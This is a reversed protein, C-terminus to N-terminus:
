LCKSLFLFGKLDTKDRLDTPWKLRKRVYTIMYFFGRQNM